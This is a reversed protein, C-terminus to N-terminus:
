YPNVAPSDISRGEIAYSSWGSSGLTVGTTKGSAISFDYMSSRSATKLSYWYYAGAGSDYYGISVQYQGPSLSFSRTSGSSLIETAGLRDSGLSNVSTPITGTYPNIWISTIDDGIQNEVELTGDAPFFIGCGFFLALVFVICMFPRLAILNKKM